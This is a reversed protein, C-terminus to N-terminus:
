KTRATDEASQTSSNSFTRFFERCYLPGEDEPPEPYLSWNIEPYKERTTKSPNRFHWMHGHVSVGKNAQGECTATKHRKEKQRAWYDYLDTYQTEDIKGWCYPQVMNQNRNRILHSHYHCLDQETNKLTAICWDHVETSLGRCVAVGKEYMLASHIDQILYACEECRLCRSDHHIADFKRICHECTWEPKLEASFEAGSKVIFTTHAVRPCYM